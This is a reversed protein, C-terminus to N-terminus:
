IQDVAFVWQGGSWGVEVNHTWDWPMGLWLAQGYIAISGTLVCYWGYGALAALCWLWWPVARLKTLM